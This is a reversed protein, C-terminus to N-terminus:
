NCKPQLSKVVYLFVSDGRGWTRPWEGKSGTSPKGYSVERLLDGVARRVGHANMKHARSMNAILSGIRKM